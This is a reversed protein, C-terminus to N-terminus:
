VCFLTSSLVIFHTSNPFVFVSLLQCAVRWHAFHCALSCIVRLRAFHCVLRTVFFKKELPSALSFSTYQNAVSGRMKMERHNEGVPFDFCINTWNKIGGIKERQSTIKKHEANCIPSDVHSQKRRQSLLRVRCINKSNTTLLTM